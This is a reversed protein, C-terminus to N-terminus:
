VVSGISAILCILDAIGHTKYQGLGDTGCMLGRRSYLLTAHSIISIKLVAVLFLLLLYSFSGDEHIDVM